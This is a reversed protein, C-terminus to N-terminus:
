NLFSLDTIKLNFIKKNQKPVYSILLTAPTEPSCHLFATMRTCTDRRGRDGRGDPSGCPMSCRAMHQLLDKSAVWQLCPLPHRDM